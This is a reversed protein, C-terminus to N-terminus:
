RIQIHKHNMENLLPWLNICANCCCNFWYRGYLYRQRELLKNRIFMPGYNEAIVENKEIVRSAKLIIINGKFHRFFLLYNTFNIGFKRKM